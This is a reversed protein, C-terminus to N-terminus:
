GGFRVNPITRQLFVTGEYQVQPDWVKLPLKLVHGWPAVLSERVV